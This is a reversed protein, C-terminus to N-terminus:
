SECWRPRSKKVTCEERVVDRALTAPTSRAIRLGFGIPARLRLLARAGTVPWRPSM